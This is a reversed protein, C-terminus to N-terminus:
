WLSPYYIPSANAPDITKSNGNSKITIESNFIPVCYDYYKETRKERYYKRRKRRSRNEFLVAIVFYEKYESAAINRMKAAQARSPNDQGDLGIENVRFARESISLKVVIIAM